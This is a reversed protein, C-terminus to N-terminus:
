FVPCYTRGYQSDSILERALGTINRLSSIEAFDGLFPSSQQCVGEPVAGRHLDRLLLGEFITGLSRGRLLSGECIVGLCHDRLLTAGGVGLFLDEAM